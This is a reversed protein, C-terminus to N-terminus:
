QLLTISTRVSRQGRVSSITEWPYKKKIKKAFTSKKTKGIKVACHWDPYHLLNHTVDINERVIKGYDMIDFPRLFLLTRSIVIYNLINKNQFRM